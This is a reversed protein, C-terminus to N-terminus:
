AEVGVVLGMGEVDLGTGASGGVAGSGLRCTMLRIKAVPGIARLRLLGAM